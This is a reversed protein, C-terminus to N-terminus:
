GALTTVAWYGTTVLFVMFAAALFNALMRQRHDATVEAEHRASTMISMDCVELPQFGFSLNAANFDYLCSVRIKHEM